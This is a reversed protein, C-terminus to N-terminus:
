CQTLYKTRELDHKCAIAVNRDYDLGTDAKEVSDSSNREFIQAHIGEGECCSLFVFGSTFVVKRKECHFIICPFVKPNPFNEFQLDNVM